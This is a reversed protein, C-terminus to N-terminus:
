GRLAPPCGLHCLGVAAIAGTPVFGRSDGPHLLGPRQRAMTRHQFAGSCRNILHPCRLPVRWCHAQAYRDDLTYTSLTGALYAEAM